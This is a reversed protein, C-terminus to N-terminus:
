LLNYRRKIKNPITKAAALRYCMVQLHEPRLEGQYIELDQYCQSKLSALTDELIESCDVFSDRALFEYDVGRIEYQLDQKMPPMRQNIESNIYVFGITDQTPNIDAIIFFKPKPPSTRKFFRRFVAGVKIHRDCFKKRDGSSFREGLKPPIM